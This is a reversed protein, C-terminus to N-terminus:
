LHFAPRMSAATAAAGLRGSIGLLEETTRLLSYHDFAAASRLGRPTYPSLVYTAIHNDKKKGEDWTVFVATSGSRYAASDLVTPLFTSLWTDGQSTSCDHMDHCRDPVILTFRASVDPIRGLPVDQRSCAQQVATYYVAPNHKVAYRGSSSAACNQPMGEALVRWGTGLQSFISPAGLPHSSPGGDDTIGQTSGSTMAIYNPLSPHAEASFNTALGCSRALSSLYPADTSGVVREYSRNEMVIWVVHRYVRPPTRLLGCPRASSPGVRGSAGSAAVAAAVAGTLLLAVLWAPTKVVSDEDLDRGSRRV